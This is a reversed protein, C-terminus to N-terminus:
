KQGSNRLKYKLSKMFEDPNDPAILYTKSAKILVLDKLRKTYVHVTEGEFNFLGFYGFLGGSGFLRLMKPRSVLSVERIDTYPIEVKGLVREIIIKDEELVIRKPSYLYTVAFVVILLISAISATFEAVGSAPRFLVTLLFVIAVVLIGIATLTKVTRDAPLSYERFEPRRM